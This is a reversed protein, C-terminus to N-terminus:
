DNFVRASSTPTLGLLAASGNTVKRAGACRFANADVDYSVSHVAGDATAFHASTSHVSGFLLPANGDVNGNSSLCRRPNQFASNNIINCTSRIVDNDQGVWMSENDTTGSGLNILDIYYFREGLIITHATGRSIDKLSVTSRQFVIGNMYNISATNNVAPWVFNPPPPNTDPGGGGGIQVGNLTESHAESNQGSGCCAAYSGRAVMRNPDGPDAANKYEWKSSGPLGQPLLHATNGSPCTM